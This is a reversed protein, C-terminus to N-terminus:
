GMEIPVLLLKAVIKLQTAIFADDDLEPLISAITMRGIDVSLYFYKKDGCDNEAAIGHNDARGM